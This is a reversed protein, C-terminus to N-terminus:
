RQRDPPWPGTPTEGRALADLVKAAYGMLQIRDEIRAFWYRSRDESYLVSNEFDKLDHGLSSALAALHRRTEQDLPVAVQPQPTFSVTAPDWPGPDRPSQGRRFNNAASRWRRKFALYEAHHHDCYGTRRTKPHADWTEVLCDLPSRAPVNTLTPRFSEVARNGRKAVKM